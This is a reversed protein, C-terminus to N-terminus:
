WVPQLTRMALPQMSGLMVRQVGLYQLAVYVVISTELQVYALFLDMGIQSLQKLAAARQM